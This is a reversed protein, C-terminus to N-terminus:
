TPLNLSNIYDMYYDTDYEGKQNRWPFNLKKIDEVNGKVFKIDKVLNIIDEPGM